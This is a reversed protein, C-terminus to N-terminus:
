EKNKVFPIILKGLEAVKKTNLNVRILAKDEQHSQCVDTSIHIVMLTPQEKALMSFGALIATGIVKILIPQLKWSPPQNTKTVKEVKNSKNNKSM